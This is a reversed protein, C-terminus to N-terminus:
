ELYGFSMLNKKLDIVHKVNTLTQVMEDFIRMRIRWIGDVRCPHDDGLTVSREDTKTYTAVLIPKPYLSAFLSFGPDM